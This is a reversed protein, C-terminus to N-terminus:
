RHATVLFLVIKKGEKHIKLKYYYMNDVLSLLFDKLFNM